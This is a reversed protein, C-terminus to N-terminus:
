EGVSGFADADAIAAIEDISAMRVDGEEGEGEGEDPLSSSSLWSSSPSIRDM